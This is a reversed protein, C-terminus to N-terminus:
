VEFLFNFEFLHFIENKKMWPLPFYIRGLWFNSNIELVRQVRRSRHPYM